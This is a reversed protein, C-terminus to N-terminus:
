ALPKRYVAERRVAVFGCAEYVRLAGSPNETDVGLAGETMGRARLLPFSAAILARALGRRRWPRRVSINEVWGRKRGYRENEEPNIYSRVMGAVQDGDWAVRWLTHDGQVPDSLFQRYDAETPLGMGWHDRFAEVEADFIARLHEPRVDRIELGDPLPADLDDLHARVMVFGYRVPKYGTRELLEIRRLAHEGAESQFVKPGPPHTAAIESGRAEMATHISELLSGDDTPDVLSIPEYIRVGELDEFWAVRGYGVIRGAREAVVIDTAPDCNSLNEYFARFQDLPTVWEDGDAQRAANAVENMAALDDPMVLHRFLTGPLARATPYTAITM